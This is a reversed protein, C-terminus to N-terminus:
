AEQVKTTFWAPLVRGHPRSALLRYDLGLARTRSRLRRDDLNRALLSQAAHYQREANDVLQAIAVICIGEM